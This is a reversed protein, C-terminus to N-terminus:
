CRRQWSFCEGRNCNWNMNSAALFRVCEFHFAHGCPLQPVEPKSVLLGSARVMLGGGVNPVM